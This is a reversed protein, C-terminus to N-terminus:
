RDPRRAGHVARVSEYDIERLYERVFFNGCWNSDGRYFRNRGSLSGYANGFDYGDTGPETLDLPLPERAASGSAASGSHM